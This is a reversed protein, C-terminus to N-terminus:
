VACVNNVTSSYLGISRSASVLDGAVIYFIDSFSWGGSSCGSPPIIGPTSTGSGPLIRLRVNEFPAEIIVEGVKVLAGINTYTRKTYSGPWCSGGVVWTGDLGQYDGGGVNVVWNTIPVNVCLCSQFGPSLWFTLVSPASLNFIPNYNSTPGAQVKAVSPGDMEITCSGEFVPTLEADGSWAGGADLEIEFGDVQTDFGVSFEARNWRPDATVTATAVRVGGLVGYVHYNSAADGAWLGQILLYTPTLSNSRIKCPFRAYSTLKSSDAGDLFPKSWVLSFFNKVNSACDTSVLVNPALPDGIGPIPPLDIPKIPPLKGLGGLPIFGGEGDPIDGDIYIADSEDTEGEFVVEITNKGTSADFGYDVSVSTITGSYEDLGAITGYLLPAVDWVRASGNMALPISEYPNNGSAFVLGALRNSQAQSELLLNPMPLLDGLLAPTHGPSLSFYATANGYEDVAVGNLLVQSVRPAMRVIEVQRTFDQAELDMVHEANATRDASPLLNYPVKVTLRGNHNCVPTALIQSFGIDTIQGWLNGAASECAPSYRTDDTLYVDMIATVTSRYHLFHFIGKDVTLGACETWATAAATSLEVGVPFSAMKGMWFAASQIEFSQPSFEPDDLISQEWIWGSIWVNERGPYLGVSGRQGNFYDMSFVAALGGLRVKAIDAPNNLTVRAAWGGGERSGGCSELEFDTIPRHDPDFVFVYRYGSFTKGNAATLLLRVRIYGNTPYSSVTLTPNTTTGNTVTGNSATFSRASIASDFVWSDAVDPFSVSAPYNEVDLVVHGGMVPVPDFDEHQDSYAIDVDMLVADESVVLHKPRVDLADVVTVYLGDDFAIGSEEGIYATDATWAKRARCIGIDHAGATSGIFVVHGPLVNAYSGEAVTGFTFETVMDTGTVSAIQCALITRPELIALGLVSYQEETRSLM